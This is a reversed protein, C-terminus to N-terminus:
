RLTIIASLGMGLTVCTLLIVTMERASVFLFDSCESNVKIANTVYEGVEEPTMQGGHDAHVMNFAEWPGPTSKLESM